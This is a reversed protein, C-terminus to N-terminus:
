GNFYVTKIYTSSVARAFVRIFCHDTLPRSAEVCAAFIKSHNFFLCFQKIREDNSQPEFIGGDNGDSSQSNAISEQEM